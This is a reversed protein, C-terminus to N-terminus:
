IDIQFDRMDMCGMCFQEHKNLILKVAWHEYNRASM